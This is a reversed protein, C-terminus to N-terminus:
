KGRKADLFYKIVYDTYGQSKAVEKFTKAKPTAVVRWLAQMDLAKDYGFRSAFNIEARSYKERYRNKESQKVTM